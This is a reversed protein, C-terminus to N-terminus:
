NNEWLRHTNTDQELCNEAAKSASFRWRDPDTKKKGQRKREERCERAGLKGLSDGFHNLFVIFSFTMFHYLLLYLSFLRLQKWNRLICMRRWTIFLSLCYDNSSGHTDIFGLRSYMLYLVKVRKCIIFSIAFESKSCCSRAIIFNYLTVHNLKFILPTWTLCLM